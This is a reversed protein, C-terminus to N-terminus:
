FAKNIAVESLKVVTPCFYEEMDYGERILKKRFQKYQQMKDISDILGYMNLSQKIPAFVSQIYNDNTTLDEHMCSTSMDVDVYEYGLYRVVPLCVETTIISNSSEVQMCFTSINLEQCHYTYRQLYDLDPVVYLRNDQYGLWREIAETTLNVSVDDTFTDLPWTVYRGIGLYTKDTEYPSQEEYSKILFGNKHFPDIM